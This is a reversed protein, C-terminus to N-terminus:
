TFKAKRRNRNRAGTKSERKAEAWDQKSWPAYRLYFRGIDFHISVRPNVYIRLNMWPNGRAEGLWEVRVLRSDVLFRTKPNLVADVVARNFPPPKAISDRHTQYKM